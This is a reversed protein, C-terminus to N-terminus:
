EVIRLTSLDERGGPSRLSVGNATVVSLPNTILPVIDVRELISEQAAQYAACKDDVSDAALAAAYAAEGEPNTSRSINRGGDDVSTGIFRTIGTVLTGVNNISAFVTVDWTDTAPGLITTIWTGNDVNSLEVTAGAALLQEQVYVNGAGNTGVANTGILRVTVGSLVERAADVDQPVLLSEDTNVCQVDPDGASLLLEANPNVTARFSEASLAQAVARRLSEDAFPSTESENFIVFIDGLQVPNITFGDSDAFRATDQPAITAVDLEGTLLQNALTTADVGVSFQLTGAPSGQLPEAWEPWAAYDERLTLEYGVGPTSDTLVYPGSFAGDVTGAALGAPDELGAPCVIGAAPVTLGVLLESYPEDLTVTVTGAADDAVVSVAGGGFILPAMSSGTQPDALRALSDAVVAPTIETGDSCTLGERITFAIEDASDTWSEALGGIIVGNDDRRVVTDFTLRAARYDDIGAVLAPDFTTPDTTWAGTIVSDATATEEPQGACGALLLGVVGLALWAPSRRATPVM